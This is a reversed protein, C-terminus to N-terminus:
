VTLRMAAEIECYSSRRGGVDTPVRGCVRSLCSSRHATHRMYRNDKEQSNPTLLCHGHMLCCLLSIKEDRRASRQSTTGWLDLLEHCIFHWPSIILEGCRQSVWKWNEFFNVRFFSKSLYMFVCFINVTNICWTKGRYGHRGTNEAQVMTWFFFMSNHFYLLNFPSPLGQSKGDHTFFFAIM